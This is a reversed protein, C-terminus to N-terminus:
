VGVGLEHAAAAAERRSRVGLKDLVAAVHHDVTRVSLVLRDAIEANTMGERLLGLVALQRPTLGAPNARTVARPGRPVRAGMARLRERVVAAAPQAGLAELMGLAEATADPEGSEALELATEYPDGAARWAAAAARWDGRLGAAWGPPCGEFSEAPLGARALYRLLEGRFPAAGPHETRALLVAGVREAVEPRGALWAWEVRAIGAYALGLLLRHHQAQEWAAALMGEAVPDGRRALLRGLWPVSYAFLMGPDDVADVVERLGREAGDWDGTRLLLLCRHVDLNYAHSWFGREHTFALGDTVCRELEDLRGARLLLEALNTYGRAAGEYYRGTIAIGISERVQELGEPDGGEVRAIGIYNLCLVALDMRQSARALSGARRLVAAAQEPDEALVLIAGQYLTAQALAADDGAAELIRVAREACDEAADTEGAMFWHRSVRVLCSGLAVSDGLGAYLEAAASGAGVAERFRAANYLEWGYDDLVAAQEAPTLRAAHPVVAELHALAQRHSGARAAERAARPGIALVTNVDGAAVAHHMLRAPEPREQVRLAEVVARNLLRVRTVPLSSEIARRALEHRFALGDPREEIVGALEAAPLASMHEGLLLTALEPSVHSPVVSLRELAERCDADLGRLRALVADRVSAPVEDRPAALTETVFFPNGRTLAHVAAPDRGSGAALSQVADRSLPAPEVRHVPCGTLAGLLRHLPHRPDLEDRMTLVLVAGVTEVRRTAYGLVDLTADDAWHIDEVVLVTPRQVALEELLAPFVRDVPSDEALAAALPGDTGAAADHLPGLTRSAVLDDCAAMPVRAEAGVRAALARVLSTKGIGAEGAILATSGHGKEAEAVAGLLVELQADRELLVEAM